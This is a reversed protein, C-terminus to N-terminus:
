SMHIKELLEELAIEIREDTTERLSLYLSFPDVKGDKSFLTPNYNWTELEFDAEDIHFLRYFGKPINIRLYDEIGIAYIPLLPSNIMTMEALASVGALPMQMMKSIPWSKMPERSKVPSRLMNNTQEWLGRKTDEFVWWREKGKKILKGIGAAELENFARTMTMPSYGLIVALESPILRENKERLLTSIVVAQTAPSFFEKHVRQQKFHERLDYGFDPIYIQNNPIIFPIRYQILRKRNYSSTTGSIYVCPNNWKEIVQKWHKQITHPTLDIDNKPVMILCRNNLLSTEFFTYANVLFLPLKKQDKWPLISIEIGLTEELYKKVNEILNTMLDGM